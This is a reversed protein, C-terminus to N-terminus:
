FWHIMAKKSKSFAKSETEHDKKCFVRFAKLKPVYKLFHIEMIYVRGSHATILLPHVLLNKVSDRPILCPHGMEAKKNM